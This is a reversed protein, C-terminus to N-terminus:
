YHFMVGEIMTLILCYERFSPAPKGLVSLVRASAPLAPHLHHLFRAPLGLQSRRCDLPVYAFSPGTYIAKFENSYADCCGTFACNGRSNRWWDTNISSKNLGILYVPSCFTLMCSSSRTLSMRTQLYVKLVALSSLTFEASIPGKPPIDGPAWRALVWPQTWIQSSISRDDFTLGAPINRNKMKNTIFVPYVKGFRHTRKETLCVCVRRTHTAPKAQMSPKLVKLFSIKIVESASVSVELTVASGRAAEVRM